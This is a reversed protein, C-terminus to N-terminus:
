IINKNHINSILRMYLYKHTKFCPNKKKKKHQFGKVMGEENIQYKEHTYIKNYVKVWVKLGLITLCGGVGECYTVQFVFSFLFLKSWIIIFYRIKIFYRIRM